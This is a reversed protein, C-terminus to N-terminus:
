PVESLAMLAADYVHRLPVDHTEAAARCTEFEPAAHRPLGDGEAVKVDIPGYKTEVVVIRRPREIRNSERVRVGLSGTESMVLRALAEAEGRRALVSLM